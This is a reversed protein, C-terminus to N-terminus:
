EESMQARSNPGMPQAIWDWPRKFVQIGVKNSEEDRQYIGLVLMSVGCNETGDCLQSKGTSNASSARSFSERLFGATDCLAKKGSKECM